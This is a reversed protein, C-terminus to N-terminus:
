KGLFYDNLQTVDNTTYDKIKMSNLVVYEKKHTSSYLNREKM